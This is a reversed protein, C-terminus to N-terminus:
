MSNSHQDISCIQYSPSSKWGHEFFCATLPHAPPVYLQSIEVHLFIGRYTPKTWRSTLKPNKYGHNRFPNGCIWWIDMITSWKSHSVAVMKRTGITAQGVWSGMDGYCSVASQWTALLFICVDLRLCGATATSRDRRLDHDAIEAFAELDTKQTFCCWLRGASPLVGPPHFVTHSVQLRPQPHASFSFSPTSLRMWATKEAVLSM